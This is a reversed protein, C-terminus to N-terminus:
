QETWGDTRALAGAAWTEIDVNAATLCGVLLNALAITIQETTTDSTRLTRVADRHGDPRALHRTVAIAGRIADPGPAPATM